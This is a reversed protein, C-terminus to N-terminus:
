EGKPDFVGMTKTTFTYEKLEPYIRGWESNLWERGVKAVKNKKHAKLSDFFLICPFKHSAKTKFDDHCKTIEGPNVVVCLSWHLSKNIPIFIFSKEFINIKKRATWSNVGSPGAKALTTFFHSTFFHVNTSETSM